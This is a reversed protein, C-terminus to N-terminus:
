HSRLSNRVSSLRNMETLDLPKGDLFAENAIILNDGVAKEVLALLLDVQEPSLIVGQEIPKSPKQAIPATKPTVHTVVVGKRVHHDPNVCFDTKCVRKIVQNKGVALRPRGSLNWLYHHVPRVKQDIMVTGANSGSRNGSWVACGNEKLTIKSAISKKSRTLTEEITRM